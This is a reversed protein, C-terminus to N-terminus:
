NNIRKPVETLPLSSSPSAQSRNGVHFAIVQRTTADIAIWIWPRNKKSGVFSWLEGM